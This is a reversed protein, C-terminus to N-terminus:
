HFDEVLMIDSDLSDTRTYIISHGDPAIDFGTGVFAFPGVDLFGLQTKKRTALDFAILPTPTTEYNLMWIANRRLKWGMFDPCDVIRTENEGSLSSNWIAGDRFYYLSKGDESEFVSNAVNSTVQVAPGGEAPSKWVQKKGARDSIFYIWRGDRSWAPVENDFPETTLRRPTGGDPSIVFIDAHGEVRSDFAISKGDPSWRPTGTDSAKMSTLQVPNSGDVASVCIELNGSRSSSFALRKGDPSIEPEADQRTSVVIRNPSAQGSVPVSTQWINTDAKYMLFALRKGQRSISVGTADEGNFPLPKIAGGDIPVESLGSLTQQTAFVIRRSDATWAMGVIGAHQSTLVTATGGSAPVICVESSLYGSGCSFAINKGDPSFGPDAMYHGTVRVNLARKEGSDVSIL